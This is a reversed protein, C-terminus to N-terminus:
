AESEAWFILRANYQIAYMYAGGKDQGIFVPTGRAGAGTLKWGNSWAETWQLQSAAEQCLELARAQVSAKGTIAVQARVRADGRFDYRTEGGIIALAVGDRPPLEGVYAVLGHDKLIVRLAELPEIYNLIAKKM